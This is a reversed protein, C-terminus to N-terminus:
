EYYELYKGLQLEVVEKAEEYSTGQVIMQYGRKFDFSYGKSANKEMLRIVLNNDTGDMELWGIIESAMASYDSTIEDEWYTYSLYLSLGSMDKKLREEIYTVPDFHVTDGTILTEPQLFPVLLQKDKPYVQDGITIRYSIYDERIISSHITGDIKVKVPEIETEGITVLVCDYELIVKEKWYVWSLGLLIV